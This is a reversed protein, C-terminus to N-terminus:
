ARNVRGVRIRCVQGRDVKIKSVRVRHRSESPESM